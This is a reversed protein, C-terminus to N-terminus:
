DSYITIFAIRRAINLRDGQKLIHIQLDLAKNFTLQLSSKLTGRLRPVGVQKCCRSAICGSGVGYYTLSISKGPHLSATRLILQQAVLGPEKAEEAVKSTGIVVRSLEAASLAETLVYGHCQVVRQGFGHIDCRRRFRFAGPWVCISTLTFSKRCIGQIRVERISQRIKVSPM